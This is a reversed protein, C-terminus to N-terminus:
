GNYLDERRWKRGGSHGNAVDMKHFCMDVWNRNKGRVTRGLLDRILTNLSTHHERAYRRSEEVLKEDIALTVNKM